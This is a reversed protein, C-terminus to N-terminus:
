WRRSGVCLLAPHPSEGLSALTLGEAPLTRGLTSFRGAPADGEQGAVVDILTTGATLRAPLDVERTEGPALEAAGALDLPRSTSLNRLLM